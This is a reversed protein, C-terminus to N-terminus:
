VEVAVKALRWFAVTATLTDLMAPCTQFLKGAVYVEEVVKPATM